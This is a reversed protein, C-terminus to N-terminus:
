WQGAGVDDTMKVAQNRPGHDSKTSRSARLPNSGTLNSTIAFVVAACDRVGVAYLRRPVRADLVIVDGTYLPTM